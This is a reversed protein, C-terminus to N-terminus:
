PADEELLAVELCMFYIVLGLVVLCKLFVLWYVCYFVVFVVLEGVVVLVWVWVEAVLVLWVCIFLVGLVLIEACGVGVKYFPDLLDLFFVGEGDIFNFDHCFHLSHVLLM